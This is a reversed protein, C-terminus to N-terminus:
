DTLLKYLHRSSLSLFPCFFYVSTIIMRETYVDSAANKAHSWNCKYLYISEPHILLLEFNTTLRFDTIKKRTPFHSDRNSLLAIWAHMGIIIIVSQSGRLHKRDTQSSEHIYVVTIIVVM